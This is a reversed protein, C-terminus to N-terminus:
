NMMRLALIFVTFSNVRTGRSATAAHELPLVPWTLKETVEREAVVAGAALATKAALAGSAAPAVAAHPPV